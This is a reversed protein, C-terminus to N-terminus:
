VNGAFNDFKAKAEAYRNKAITVKDGYYKIKLRNLEPTMRVMAIGNKQVWMSVPFLIVKTLLTFVVIAGAYNGLLQQCLGLLAGLPVSVIDTIKMDISIIAKRM